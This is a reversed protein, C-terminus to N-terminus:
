HYQRELMTIAAEVQQCISTFTINVTFRKKGYFGDLCWCSITSVCSIWLRLNHWWHLSSCPHSYRINRNGWWRRTDQVGRNSTSDLSPLHIADKRWVSPCTFDELFGRSVWSLRVSAWIASPSLSLSLSLAHPAWKRLHMNLNKLPM